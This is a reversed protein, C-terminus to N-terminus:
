AASRARYKPAFSVLMMAQGAESRSLQIRYGTDTRVEELRHGVVRPNAVLTLPPLKHREREFWLISLESRELLPTKRLSRSLPVAIKSPDVEFGIRELDVTMWMTGTTSQDRMQPRPFMPKVNLGFSRAFDGIQLDPFRRELAYVLDQVDYIEAVGEKLFKAVLEDALKPNTRLRKQNVARWVDEILRSDILNHM